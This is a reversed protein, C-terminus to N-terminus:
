PTLPDEYVADVRVSVALSRLEVADGAHAEAVLTWEDRENRRYVEVLPEAQSVLVYEELSPIRRYHAFKAGRDYGETSDPLVEVLLKPNTIAQGDIASTQLKTCVVSIDPYCSFDTAEVRIRVDGSFVSCPKGRLAARLESAMAVQLRGHEITGGAMAFVDGRVYEHKTASAHESALYEAYSTHM